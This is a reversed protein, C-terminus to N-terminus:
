ALYTSYMQYAYQSMQSCLFRILMEMHMPPLALVKLFHANNPDFSGFAGMVFADLHVKFGEKELITKLDAYRTMREERASDFARITDEM